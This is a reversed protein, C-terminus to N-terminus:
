AVGSTNDINITTQIAIAIERNIEPDDLYKLAHLRGLGIGPAGHCWAIMLQNQVPNRLDLWNGAEPYFHSREYNIAAIAASQFKQKGTIQALELLVSACGLRVLLLDQSPSSELM